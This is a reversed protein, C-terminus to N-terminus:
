DADKACRFGYTRHSYDPRSAFRRAPRGFIKGPELFSGGKLVYVGKKYRGDSVTNGQYSLYHSSTWESVNGASDYVGYVSKDEPHSGVPATWAPFKESTHANGPEYQNGWPWRRGEAGRAAKEWEFETPLRKGKWRCYDDADYWSIYNAPHRNLDPPNFYIEPPFEEPFNIDGLWEKGSVKLYEKYEGITVEYQDIYFANLHLKHRPEEDVGFDEGRKGDMASDSGIIFKGAPILIMGEYPRSESLVVAGTTLLIWAPPLLLFIAKFKHIWEKRNILM